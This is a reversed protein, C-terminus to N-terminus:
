VMNQKRLLDEIGGGNEVATFGAQQLFLLAMTSRAGSHCYTIFHDEKNLEDFRQPLEDVPINVAGPYHGNNFEASTRVDLYITNVPNNKM